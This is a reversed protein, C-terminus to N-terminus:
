PTPDLRINGGGSRLVFSVPADPATKAKLAQGPGNNAPQFKFGNGIRGSATEADVTFHAYIPLRVGLRGHQIAWDFAAPLNEWWDYFVDMAGHISRAQVRAYCNFATIRGNVLDIDASGGRLGHLTVEGNVLKLKLQATEPVTVTYDITGSRDAFLGPAAPIITRVALSAPESKAEVRIQQLRPATYARCLATLRVRPENWGYIHISGDTHELTM